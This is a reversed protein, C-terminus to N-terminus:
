AWPWPNKDPFQFHRHPELVLPSERLLWDRASVCNWRLRGDWVELALAPEWLRLLGAWWGCGLPLLQYLRIANCPVLLVHLAVVPYLGNLMGYSIFCFNACLAALRLPIMAHMSFALLTFLAALWGTLEDLAM